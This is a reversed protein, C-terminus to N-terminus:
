RECVNEVGGCEFRCTCGSDAAGVILGAVEELQGAIAEAFCEPIRPHGSLQVDEGVDRLADLRLDWLVSNRHIWFRGEVRELGRLDLQELSQISDVWVTGGVSRLFPLRISTTAMGYVNLDGGVRQLNPLAIADDVAITLSGTIETYGEAADRSESGVLVVDGEFVQEPASPLNVVCTGTEGSTGNTGVDVSAATDTEMATGTSGGSEEADTEPMIATTSGTGTMADSSGGGHDDDALTPQGGSDAETSRSGSAVTTMSVAQTGVAASAGGESGAGHMPASEDDSCAGLVMPLAIAWGVVVDIGALRM